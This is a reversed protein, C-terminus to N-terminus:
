FLVPGFVALDIQSLIKVTGYKNESFSVIVRLFFEKGCIIRASKRLRVGYGLIRGHCSVLSLGTATSAPTNSPSLTRRSRVAYCRTCVDASKRCTSIAPPIGGQWARFRGREPGNGKFHPVKRRRGAYLGSKQRFFSGFLWFIM